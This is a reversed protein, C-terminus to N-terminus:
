RARRMLKRRCEPAFTYRARDDLHEGCGCACCEVSVHALQCARCRGGRNDSRLPAGCVLCTRVALEGRPVTGLQEAGRQREVAALM